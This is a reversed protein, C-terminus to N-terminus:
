ERLNQKIMEEMVDSKITKTGDAYYTITLQIRQIDEWKGRAFLNPDVLYEGNAIRVLFGAKYLKQICNELTRVTINLEKSVRVKKSKNFTVINNYGMERIIMILVLLSSKELSSLKILDNFYMKAFDLEQNVFFTKLVEQQKVEGTSFDVFNNIEKFSIKKKGKKSEM